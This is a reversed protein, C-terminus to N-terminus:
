NNRQQGNVNLDNWVDTFLIAKIQVGSWIEACPREFACGMQASLFM